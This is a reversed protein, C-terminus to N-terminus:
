CSPASGGSVSWQLTMCASYNNCYYESVLITVTGTFTATWTITSQLSCADDNYALSTGGCSSGSFLTLQTDFSSDGCTTWTYTAGSTVNFYAYEGGYMCTSVTTLTSSTTSFTGSPYNANCNSCQGKVEKSLGFAAIFVGLVMLLKALNLFTLRITKQRIQKLKTTNKM